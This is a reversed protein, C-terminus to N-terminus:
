SLLALTLGQRNGRARSAFDFGAFEFKFMMEAGALVSTKKASACRSLPRPECKKSGSM